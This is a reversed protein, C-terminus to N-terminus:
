NEEQMKFGSNKLSGLHTTRLQRVHSQRVKSKTNKQSCRLYLPSIGSEERYRGRTIADDAM